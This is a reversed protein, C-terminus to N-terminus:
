PDWPTGEQFGKCLHRKQFGLPDTNTEIGVTPADWKQAPGNGGKQADRLLSAPNPAHLTHFSLLRVAEEYGVKKSAEPKLKLHISVKKKQPNFLSKPPEKLLFDISM